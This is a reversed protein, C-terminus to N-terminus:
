SLRHPVIVALIRLRQRFNTCGDELFLDDIVDQRLHLDDLLRDAFFGQQIFFILVLGSGGGLLRLLCRRLLGLLGVSLLSFLNLARLAVSSDSFGGTARRNKTQEITALSTM